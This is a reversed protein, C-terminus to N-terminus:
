YYRQTDQSPKVRGRYFRLIFFFYGLALAVAIPWWVLAVMLSEHSASSNYATLSHESGLTSQLIFPFMAAAGAGLLGVILLWSGVFARRERHTHFGTLIAAGGTWAVVIAMAVLPRHAVGVVLEPRVFWTEVSIAIFGLCVAAWLRRALHQSREHVAGETKVSLYTAGHAGLVLLTFVGMSVTYWDLLGVRGRVGFNTFFAMQFDRSGDLPVGRAVNGLAAGFLVALVISSAAFVFDWFEQWLPNGVHGGVELSIGRLILSWLVLFLALYYGTFGTALVPPFAFFLEGGFAILWVEHWSWLPGIAAVIQRREAATKAVIMQVAGVGFNRGDLVLYITLTGALIAYWIEVM